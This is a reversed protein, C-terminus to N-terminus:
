GGQANLLFWYCTCVDFWVLNSFREEYFLNILDELSCHSVDCVRQHYSNDQSTKHRENKQMQPMFPKLQLIFTLTLTLEYNLWCLTHIYTYALQIDRYIHTLTHMCLKERMTGFYCLIVLRCSWPAKIDCQKPELTMTNSLRLLEGLVQRRYM